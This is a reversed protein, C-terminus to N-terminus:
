NFIVTRPIKVNDLKLLADEDAGSRVLSSFDHMWSSFLMRGDEFYMYQRSIAAVGEFLQRPTPNDDWGWLTGDDKLFFYAGAYTVNDAIHVPENRPVRTGDGLQGGQNDGFGWLSGDLKTFFTNNTGGVLSITLDFIKDVDAAIEVYSNAGQRLMLSRMPNIYHTIHFQTSAGFEARVWADFAAETSIKTLSHNNGMRHVNGDSTRIFFVFTGEATAARPNRVMQFDVVNDVVPIPSFNGNGWTMLTKDTSLAYIVADTISARWWGLVTAINDAIHVPEDRNVGTGDGLL